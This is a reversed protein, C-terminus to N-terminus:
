FMMNKEANKTRSWPDFGWITRVVIFLRPGTILWPVMMTRGGFIMCMFFTMGAWYVRSEPPFYGLLISRSLRPCRSKSFWRNDLNWIGVNHFTDSRCADLLDDDFTETNLYQPPAVHSEAPTHRAHRLSYTTNQDSSPLRTNFGDWKDVEELFIDMGCAKYSTKRRTAM